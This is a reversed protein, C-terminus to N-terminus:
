EGARHGLEEWRALRTEILLSVEHYRRHSRQREVQDQAPAQFGAELLRKEEELKAIEELLQEYERREKFSLANTKQRRATRTTEPQPSARGAASEAAGFGGPVADRYGASKAARYEEYNGTFGRIGGEGDFVFLYDTLRDLLARDHSVLIICGAFDALYDELLRITDLDLDNTPEDLLLFNPAEALLRVLTLRRLEGGSLRDLALSQMERPFLFRELFQEVPVSVGDASVIREAHERMYDVVTLNGELTVAVQDFCAFVITEGKVATGSDPAVRGSLLNLFTTKGSGNPGIVGIREGRRFSYSFPSIVEKGGYSKAIGRLELVKKGLRRHASSFRQMATEKDVRADLLSQIRDKRGKDKGTRARPGRKLWALEGRLISSRRSEARELSEARQAKSELYASYNGPYKYIRRGDIEMIATCVADLFYRDHTVILFGFVANGLFAELWEITDLDLHNTPEDLTLFGAGLAFCRALAAKRVMGGSLTGMPAAPDELGLERCYSRFADVVAAGEQTEPHIIRERGQFLFEGLRMEATYSPTQELSSITCDRSRAVSGDDPPLEGNLIQLLTSKGSGNRGVFGIKEGADIGLTVHEFLPTDGLTTGVDTLSLINM